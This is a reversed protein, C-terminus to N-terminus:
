YDIFYENLTYSVSLAGGGGGGEAYITIAKVLSISKHFVTALAGKRQILLYKLRNQRM